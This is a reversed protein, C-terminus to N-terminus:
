KGKGTWKKKKRYSNVIAKHQLYKKVLQNPEKAIRYVGAHGPAEKFFERYVHGSWGFQYKRKAEIFVLGSYFEQKEEVTWVKKKRDKSKVDKLKVLKGEVNIVTNQKEPIFQCAPCQHVGAPKMYNCSPCPTPLPDDKQRKDKDSKGKTRTDLAFDIPDTPFGHRLTNGAHDLILCDNKVEAIRLGRGFMQWHLALSRTPRAFILCSTEPADFGKTCIGVSCLVEYEGRRYMRIKEHRDHIENEDTPYCDVHTANIGAKRLESALHKSHTVTCAFLLTRRGLGHNIYTEVINAVIRPEYREAAANMDLDGNVTRVGTFDPTDPAYVEYGCLYGQEILNNISIASVIGHYFLGMGRAFPTATLGIVPIDPYLSVLKDRVAYQVHAEDIIILGVDYRHLKDNKLWSNITAQSCVQMLRAPDTREHQAQMVGVPLGVNDFTELAQGVLELTDCIFLVRKKNEIVSKSIKAAIATKGAGTAAQIVIRRKDKPLKALMSRAQDISRIQYDRYIFDQKPKFDLQANM